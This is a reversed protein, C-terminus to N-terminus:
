GARRPQTDTPQLVDLRAKLSKIQRDILLRAGARKVWVDHESSGPLTLALALAEGLRGAELQSTIKAWAQARLKSSQNKDSKRRVRVITQSWAAIKGYLGPQAPKEAQPTVVNVPTAFIKAQVRLQDMSPAGAKAYPKLLAIAPDDPAIRAYANLPDAFGKQAKMAEILSMGAAKLKTIQAITIAMAVGQGTVVAQRAMAEFKALRQQVIALTAKTDKASTQASLIFKRMETMGSTLARFQQELQGNSAQLAREMTGLRAILTQQAVLTKASQVVQAKLQNDRQLNDKAIDARLRVDMAKLQRQLDAIQKQSTALGRQLLTQFNPGNDPLPAPKSMLAYLGTIIVLGAVGALWLYKQPWQMINSLGSLGKRLDDWLGAGLEAFNRARVKTQDESPTQSKSKSAETAPIETAEVDIIPPRTARKRNGAGRAKGNRGGNRKSPERAM